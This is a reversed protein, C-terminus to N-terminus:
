SSRPAASGSSNRVNASRAAGSHFFQPKSGASGRAHCSTRSWGAFVIPSFNAPVRRFHSRSHPQVFRSSGTLRSAPVFANARNTPCMRASKGRNRDAYLAATWSYRVAWPILLLLWGTGSRAGPSAGNQPGVRGSPRRSRSVTGVM